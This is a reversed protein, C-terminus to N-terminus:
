DDYDSYEPDPDGGRREDTVEVHDVGLKKLNKRLFLYLGDESALADAKPEFVFVDSSTGQEPTRGGGGSVKGEKKLLDRVAGLVKDVDVDVGLRGGAGVRLFLKNGTSDRLIKVYAETKDGAAMREGLVDRAREVLGSLRGM